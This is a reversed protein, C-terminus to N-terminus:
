IMYSSEGTAQGDKHRQVIEKLTIGSMTANLNREIEVWVGRITCNLSRKCHDPDTVCAVLAVPGELAAVVDRVTIAGPSRALIYGGHTGRTARLLGAMKLPNIVQWLYKRSIAQRSAIESLAVPGREQNLTVDLMVRLGYRGKTSIKM